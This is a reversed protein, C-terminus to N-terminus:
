DFWTSWTLQVSIRNRGNNGGVEGRDEGTLRATEFTVTGDAIQENASLHNWDQLSFGLQLSSCLPVAVVKRHLPVASGRGVAVSHEPTVDFLKIAVQTGDELSTTATVTGYVDLADESSDLVVVEVKAVAADTMAVFRLEVHGDVGHIIRSHIADYEENTAMRSNWLLAGNSVHDDPSLDSDRDMLNFNLAFDDYGSIARAPGTLQAQEGPSVSQIDNRDRSFVQESGVGDDVTISGYLDGPSEDDIRRVIVEIVEVLTLGAVVHDPNDELSRRQRRAGHTKLLVLGLAQAAELYNHIGAAALSQFRRALADTVTPQQSDNAALLLDTSIRSWNQILHYAVPGLLNNEHSTSPPAPDEPHAMLGAVREVVGNLRLTEIFHIILTRLFVKLSADDITSGNNGHTALTNIASVVVDRGVQVNEDLTGLGAGQYNGGFGLLTSDTIVRQRGDELRFEFWTTAPDEVVGNRFGVVYLNDMRLRLTIAHEDTRLVLDLFRTPIDEQAPLRGAGDQVVFPRAPDRLMARVDTIFQRFSREAEKMSMDFSPPDM